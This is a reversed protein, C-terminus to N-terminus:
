KWVLTFDADAFQPHEKHYKYFLAQLANYFQAHVQGVLEESVADGAALCAPVPIPEGVCYMLPVMIYPIPFGLKKYTLQQLTPWNWGNALQLVEGIALVPVLSARQLCLWSGAHSSSHRTHTSWSLRAGPCLIVSGREALTAIFTRKTVQRFGAWRSIDRMGPVLFMVSAVLTVPRIGAFASRMSPMLPLFGAGTPYLGHPHFGFVYRGTPDPPAKCESRLVVSGFWFMLSHEMNDSIWDMLRPWAGSGTHQPNGQTTVFFYLAHSGVLVAVAARAPLAMCTLAGALMVVHMPTYMLLVPGLQGLLIDRPTRRAILLPQLLKRATKRAKFTVLSVGLTAQTVCMLVGTAVAWCRLCYGVGAILQKALAILVVLTVAFLAWGIAQTAVFATGGSFPQFFQWRSSGDNEAGPAAAAVLDSGQLLPDDALLANSQRRTLSVAGEKRYPQVQVGPTMSLLGLDEMSSSAASALNLQPRKEQELQREEEEEEFDPEAFRLYGGLGHTTGAAILFCSVALCCYLLRSASDPMYELALLLFCGTITLLCGMCIVVASAFLGGPRGKANKDRYVLLAKLMFLEGVFSTAAAAGSVFDVHTNPIIPLPKPSASNTLISMYVPVTAAASLAWLGQPFRLASTQM